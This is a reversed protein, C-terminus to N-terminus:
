DEVVVGLVALHHDRRGARTVAVLKAGDDALDQGVQRAAVAAGAVLDPEQPEVAGRQPRGGSRREGEPAPARGRVPLPRAGGAGRLFGRTGRAPGHPRRLGGRLRAFRRALARVHLLAKRGARRREGDVFASNRLRVRATGREPDVDLVEFQGWGRQTIRAMYHHFVAVGTLGHHAAEKECWHYASRHGAPRLIGALRDPGLAEEVAVHNNLFFHQPVLIM